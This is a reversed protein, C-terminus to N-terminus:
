PLPVTVSIRTGHGPKSEVSLTGGLIRTREGISVLGLGGKGKVAEPTFGVGDDELSLVLANEKKGLSVTLQKAGAHKAVNRLSEEAIRYLGSAIQQPVVDPLKGAKFRVRVKKTKSFESCLARLSEILGLDDLVSPHLAYAIQRAEESASTARAGLEELRARTAAPRPLSVALNEVDLALSALKQCLSDHLERSVRRREEEQATILQAALARIETELRRRDTCDTIFAVTLELGAQDFASLHVEVPFISGDAHRGEDQAPLLLAFSKGLVDARRYGFMREAASNILVIKRDAGAAIIAQEASEFLLRAYDRSEVLERQIIDTDFLIVIM